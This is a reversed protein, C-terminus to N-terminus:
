GTDFVMSGSECLDRLVKEQVALAMVVCTAKFSKRRDLPGSRPDAFLRLKVRVM